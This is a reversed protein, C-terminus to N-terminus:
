SANNKAANENRSPRRECCQYVCTTTNNYVVVLAVGLVALRFSENGAPAVARLSVRDAREEVRATTEAFVSALRRATM